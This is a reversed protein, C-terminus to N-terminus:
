LFMAPSVSFRNALIKIHNKSLQRQGTLIRSGLSRDGLLRGLDSANMGNEEILYKVAQAPTWKGDIPYQENEYDHIVLTLSELYQLQTGTLKRGILQDAAAMASKYDAKTRIPRLPYLDALLRMWEAPLPTIRNKGKLKTATEM